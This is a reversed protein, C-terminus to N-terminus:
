VVESTQGVALALDVKPTAGVELIIGDTLAKKFGSAEAEVRYTGVILGNAVYVGARNTTLTTTVNTDLNTVKVTANPIVAGSPDNVTGTITGYFQQPGLNLRCILVFVLSSM